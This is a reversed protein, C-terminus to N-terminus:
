GLSRTVLDAAAAEPSTQELQLDAECAAPDLLALSATGGLEDAAPAVLELLESGLEAAPAYRTGDPHVLKARTGFRSASWRNQVYDARGRDGLLLSNSPLGGELATACLAQLLAAFAASLHV